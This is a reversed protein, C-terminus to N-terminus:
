VGGFQVAGTATAVACYLDDYGDVELVLGQGAVLEIGTTAQGEGSTVSSNHGVYISESNTSAAKVLVGHRPSVLGSGNLQQGAGPAIYQGKAGWSTSLDPVTGGSAAYPAGTTPEVLVVAIPNSQTYDYITHTSYDSGSSLLGFMVARKARAAFEHEWQDLFPQVNGTFNGM